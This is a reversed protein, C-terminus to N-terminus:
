GLCQSCYSHLDVILLIRNQHVIVTFLWDVLSTIQVCVLKLTRVCTVVGCFQACLEAQFESVNLPSFIYM